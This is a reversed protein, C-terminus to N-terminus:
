ALLVDPDDPPHAIRVLDLAQLRDLGRKVHLNSAVKASLVAM